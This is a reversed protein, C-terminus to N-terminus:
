RRSERYVQLAVAGTSSLEKFIEQINKINFYHAQGLIAEAHAINEIAVVPEDILIFAQAMRCIFTGYFTLLEYEENDWNTISTIIRILKEKEFCPLSLARMSEKIVIDANELTLSAHKLVQYFVEAEMFINFDEESTSQTETRRKKKENRKKKNRSVREAESVLDDDFNHAFRKHTNKRNKRRRRLEKLTVPDSRTSRLGRSTGSGPLHRDYDGYYTDRHYDSSRSRTQNYRINNRPPMNYQFISFGGSVDSASGTDFDSLSPRKDVEWYDWSDDSIEHPAEPFSSFHTQDFRGAAM